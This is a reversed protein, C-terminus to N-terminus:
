SGKSGQTKSEQPPTKAGTERDEPEQVQEGVGKGSEEEEIVKKVEAKAEVLGVLIASLTEMARAAMGGYIGADIALSRAEPSPLEVGQLYEKLNRLDMSVNDLTDILKEM